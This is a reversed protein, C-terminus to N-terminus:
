LPVMEESSSLIFPVPSSCDLDERPSDAHTEFIAVLPCIQAPNM